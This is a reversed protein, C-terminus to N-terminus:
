LDREATPSPVNRADISAYDHIDNVLGLLRRSAEQISEIYRRQRPQLETQAALSAMGIVANIPARIEDSMNALFMSKDANAAEAQRRAAILEEQDRKRRSVDRIVCTFLAAAGAVPSVAVEVPIATGDKRRGEREAAVDTEALEYIRAAQPLVLDLPAGLAEDACYGFIRGAGPSWQRIVGDADAIVIADVVSDFIAQLEARGNLAEEEAALRQAMEDELRRATELQSGAFTAAVVLAVVLVDIVAIVLALMKQDVAAVSARGVAPFFVAADMGTYHMGAIACGMVVSSGATSYRGLAARLYPVCRMALALFACAAAVLVSIAVIRADYRLLGPLRVAAMGWYHMTGIGGGMLLAGLALTGLSVERRSGILHVAVGGAVIGPVISVLTVRPDYAIGCPLSFALMGIFHMSWIGFGLSAAGAVAWALHARPSKAAAIRASISLAGFSFLIAVALSVAVLLTDYHGPYPAASPIPAPRFVRSLHEFM